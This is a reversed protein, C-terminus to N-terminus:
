CRSRAHFRCSKHCSRSSRQNSRHARAFRALWAFPGGGGLSRRPRATASRASASARRRGEVTSLAPEEAPGAAPVTLDPMQLPLGWIVSAERALGIHSLCDPRNATIEFDIVPVPGPEIAAVEFGRLSVEHAISEPTGPVRVLDCLWPYVLRM